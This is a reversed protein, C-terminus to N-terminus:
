GRIRRAESVASFARPCEKQYAKLTLSEPQWPQTAAALRCWVYPVHGLRPHRQDYAATALWGGVGGIFMSAACVHSTWEGFSTVAGLCVWTGIVPYVVVQHWIKTPSLAQPRSYVGRVVERRWQWLGFTLFAGAVMSVVVINMSQHPADGRTMSVTAAIALALLCDGFLFARYERALVPARRELVAALLVPVVPTVALAVLFAAAPPLGVSIDM